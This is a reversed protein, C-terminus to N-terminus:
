VCLSEEITVKDKFEQFFCKQGMQRVWSAWLIYESEIRSSYKQLTMLDYNSILCTVLKKIPNKKGKLTSITAVETTYKTMKSVGPLPFTELLHQNQINM